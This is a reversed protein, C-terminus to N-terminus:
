RWDKSKVTGGAELSYMLGLDAINLDLEPDIARKLTAHSVVGVNM